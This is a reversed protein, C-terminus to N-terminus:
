DTWGRKHGDRWVLLRCPQALSVCTSFRFRLRTQTEGRNQCRIASCSPHRDIGQQGINPGRKLPWSRRRPSKAAHGLSPLAQSSTGCSHKDGFHEVRQAPCGWSRFFAFHGHHRPFDSHSLLESPRLGGHFFPNAIASNRSETAADGLPLTARVSTLVDITAFSSEIKFFCPSVISCISFCYLM